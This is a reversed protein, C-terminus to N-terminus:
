SEALPLTFWFTSGKGPESDVGVQGRHGDVIGKVIALGLGVGPMQRNSAVRYFREFLRAQHEVPIGPGQDAVEIRVEPGARHARLEITSGTPSYKSANSLLNYIARVVQSRDAMVVVTKDPQSEVRQRATELLPQAAEVAAAALEPWPVPEQDVQFLGAQISRSDLMDDVLSQLHAVARSARMMLDDLQEPTLDKYMDITLGLSTLPGRLEHALDDLLRERANSLEQLEALLQLREDEARKRETIDRINAFFFTSGESTWSALAVEVPFESGDRRLAMLEVTRGLLPHEDADAFGQVARTHAERFREPVILTIPQGILEDAAYGFLTEARKNVYVIIGGADASIRAEVSSESFSQFRNSTDATPQDM